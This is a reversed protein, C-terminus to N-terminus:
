PGRCSSSSSSFIELGWPDKGGSQEEKRAYFDLRGDLGRVRVGRTRAEVERVDLIFLFFALSKGSSSLDFFEM